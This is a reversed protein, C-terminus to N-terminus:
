IDVVIQLMCQKEKNEIIMDNYTVAKVLQGHMEYEKYHDGKIIARIKYPISKMITLSVIEHLLFGETDMLYVFEDLFTLLLERLSDAKINIEKELKPKIKTTDFTINAMALAANIFAEQLNVGYARFMADATHPLYEWKNM